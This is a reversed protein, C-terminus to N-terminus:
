SMLKGANFAALKGGDDQRRDLWVRDIVEWPMGREVGGLQAPVLHDVHDVSPLPSALAIRAAFSLVLSCLCFPVQRM